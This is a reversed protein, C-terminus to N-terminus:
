VRLITPLTLHTYSVPNVRRLRRWKKAGLAENLPSSARQDLIAAVATSVQRRAEAAAADAM